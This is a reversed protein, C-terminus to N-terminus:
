SRAIMKKQKESLAEVAYMRRTYDRATIMRKKRRMGPKRALKKKKQIVM